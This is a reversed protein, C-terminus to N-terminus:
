NLEGLIKMPNIEKSLAQLSNKFNTKAFRRRGRAIVEALYGEDDDTFGKYHKINNSKLFQLIQRAADRGKPSAKEEM